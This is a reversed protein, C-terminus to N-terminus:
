RRGFALVREIGALDNIPRPPVARVALGAAAFIEIVDSAQGQGLEVLVSGEDALRLLSGGAIARYADLGDVGGSLALRPDGDRVEPSLAGIAAEPIYPPNSVILDFRGGIGAFWDSVLFCARAAVGHRRTNEMAVALAAPSLDVAVGTADPFAALLTVVLIGTGTGLDLIRRPPRDACVAFAAEILTETDPRPELTDATVAFARGYFEREGVIRAVTEGALRRRVLAEIRELEEGSLARMSGSILAVQDIALAHMLLLRADLAATEIGAEALRRRMTAQAAALTKEPPM